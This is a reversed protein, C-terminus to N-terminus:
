RFVAEQGPRRRSFSQFASDAMPRGGHGELHERRVHLGLNSSAEDRKGAVLLENAVAGKSTTLRASSWLVNHPQEVQAPEDLFRGSPVLPQASVCGRLEDRLRTLHGSLKASSPVHLQLNTVKSVDNVCHANALEAAPRSRSADTSIRPMQMQARANVQPLNGGGPGFLGGLFGTRDAAAKGNQYMSKKGAVHHIKKRAPWGRPAMASRELILFHRLGDEGGLKSLSM